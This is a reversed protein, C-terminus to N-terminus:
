TESVYSSSFAFVAISRTLLGLAPATTSNEPVTKECYLMMTKAVRESVIGSYLLSFGDNGSYTARAIREVALGDSMEGVGRVRGQSESRQLLDSARHPILMTEHRNSHRMTQTFDINPLLANQNSDRRGMPFSRPSSSFLTEFLDLLLHLNPLLLPEGISTHPSRVPIALSAHLHSHHYQSHLFCRDNTDYFISRQATIFPFFLDRRRHLDLWAM